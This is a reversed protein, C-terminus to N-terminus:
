NKSLDPPEFCNACHLPSPPHIMTILCPAVASHQPRQIVATSCGTSPDHVLVKQRLHNLQPGLCLSQQLHLKFVTKIHQAHLHKYVNTTTKIPSIYSHTQCTEAVPKMHISSNNESTSHTNQLTRATEPVTQKM